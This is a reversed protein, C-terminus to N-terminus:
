ANDIGPANHGQARRVAEDIAAGDVDVEWDPHNGCKLVACGLADTSVYVQCDAVSEEPPPPM